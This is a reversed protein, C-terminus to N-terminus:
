PKPMRNVNPLDPVIITGPAGSHEGATAPDLLRELERQDHTELAKKVADQDEKKMTAYEHAIYEAVISDWVQKLYPIAKFIATLLAVAATM